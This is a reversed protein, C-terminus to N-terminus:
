TEPFVANITGDGKARTWGIHLAHYGLYLFSGGALALPYNTWATGLHPTLAIGAFAGLLTASEAAAAWAFAEPRTGTSSKLIAGLALGEPMKHLLVAVPFAIKVSTPASATVAALGWGDIFAHVAAAVALPVTFGHLAAECDAHTHGHTHSCAPCVTQTQRDILFLLLYGAAFIPVSKWWGIEGALEPLLGFLSVALLLIGSALVVYKTTKPVKHLYMGPVIGALAVAFAILPLGVQV